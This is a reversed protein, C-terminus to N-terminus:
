KEYVKKLYEMYDLKYIEIEDMTPISNFAVIAEKFTDYQKALMWDEVWVKSTKEIDGIFLHKKNVEKGIVLIEPLSDSNNKEIDM